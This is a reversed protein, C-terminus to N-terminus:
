EFLKEKLDALEKRLQDSVQAAVAKSTLELVDPDCLAAKLHEKTTSEGASMTHPLDDLVTSSLFSSSNVTVDSDDVISDGVTRHRKEEQDSLPSDATRKLGSAAM